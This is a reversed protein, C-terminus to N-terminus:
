FSAKRKLKKIRCFSSSAKRKTEKLMYNYGYL